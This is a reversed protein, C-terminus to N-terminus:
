AVCLRQLGQAGLRWHRDIRDLRSLDPQLWSGVCHAGHPLFSRRPGSAHHDHHQDFDHHSNHLQHDHHHRCDRRVDGRQRRELLSSAGLRGIARIRYFYTTASALGADLYAHQSYGVSAIALFAGTAALGREISYSKVRTNTDSWNLSIASASVGDAALSPSALSSWSNARGLSEGAALCVQLGEQRCHRLTQRRCPGREGGSAVCAAIDDRCAHRCQTTSAGHAPPNFLLLGLLIVPTARWATVVTGRGM